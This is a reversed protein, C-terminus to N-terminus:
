DMIPVPGHDPEQPDQKRAASLRKRPLTVRHESNASLDLELTQDLRGPLQVLIVETGTRAPQERHWPTMGLRVGDAARVVSAGQPVSDILSRVRLPPAPVSPQEPVRPATLRGADPSAAVANTPIFAQTQATTAVASAPLSMPAIRAGGKAADTRQSQTPPGASTSSRRWIRVGGIFVAALGILSGAAMLVRVRRKRLLTKHENGLDFAYSSYASESLISPRASDADVTAM